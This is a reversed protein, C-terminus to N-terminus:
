PYAKEDRAPRGRNDGDDREPLEVYVRTYLTLASSHPLPFASKFSTARAARSSGARPSRTGNSRAARRAGAARRWKQIFTTSYVLFTFADRFPLLISDFASPNISAAFRICLRSGLPTEGLGLIRETRRDFTPVAVAMLHCRAPLRTTYIVAQKGREKRCERRGGGEM